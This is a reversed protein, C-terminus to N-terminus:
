RDSTRKRVIDLMRDYEKRAAAEPGGASEESGYSEVKEELLDRLPTLEEVGAKEIFTRLQKIREFPEPDKSTEDLERPLASVLATKLTSFNDAKPKGGKGKAKGAGQSHALEDYNYVYERLWFGFGPRQPPADVKLSDPAAVRLFWPDDRVSGEFVDLAGKKVRELKVGDAVSLQFWRATSRSIRYWHEVEKRPTVRAYLQPEDDALGVLVRDRGLTATDDLSLPEPPRSLGLAGFLKGILGPEPQVFIELDEGLYLTGSLEEGAVFPALGLVMALARSVTRTRIRMPGSRLMTYSPTSVGPTGM